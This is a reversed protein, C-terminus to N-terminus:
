FNTIDYLIKKILELKNKLDYNYLIISNPQEPTFKLNNKFNNLTNLIAKQNISTNQAFNIEINNKIERIFNIKLKNAILKINSISFLNQAQIPIEGFRDICEDQIEIIDKNTKINLLAKYFSIRLAPNTIYDDPFYAQISIDIETNTELEQKGTKILELAKDLLEVYLEFGIQKIYGHQKAGLINGAGRIELDRLALKFGAGLGSFEQIAQLRRISNETLNIGEPYFMYCFAKEYGRGIRGRLQYLQALGLKEIGDIIMMNVSPIDLGSEIITTALLIDIEKALFAHMVKELDNSKMRGHAIAIKANPIIKKLVNYKTHITEVRNFVYFVQGHRQLEFNIADKIMTENYPAIHTTIEQRTPPPTEILSIDKLGGLSMSLTRPIPTASLMLVDINESLTKIKEKDKVGFRHEEDVIVLGLSSFKINSRLITHTGIVIDVKGKAIDKIINNRNKSSQFRSLMAINAPYEAFRNKFNNYHQEALITTPVLIIVQKNNIVARFSARIAVETKGYGVDGCVLREMPSNSQMDHLVDTIAKQQDPTEQYPFSEQFEKEYVPDSKFSIGKAIKRKAQVNIIKEAMEWIKNKISEKKRTWYSSGLNDLKPSFDESSVYRHVLNFDYMPVYLKDNSSYEITIYDQEKTGAKVRKFGLFKGLGYNSHIVYDGKKYDFSSNKFADTNSPNIKKNQASQEYIRNFIEKETIFINKAKYSIFGERVYGTYFHTKTLNNYKSHILDTIKKREADTYLIISINFDSNLWHSFQKFFLEWNTQFNVVTQMGFDLVGPVSLPEISIRKHNQFIPISNQSYSSGFCLIFNKNDFYNMLPEENATEFSTGIPTISFNNIKKISRQTNPDFEYIQEIKNEDFLIRIPYEKSSPWIDLIEGRISYEGMETVEDLNQYGIKTFSSSLESIQYISNIKLEITENKLSNFSIVNDTISDINTVIIKKEKNNVLNYFFQPRKKSDKSPIYDIYTTIKNFTNWFKLENTIYSIDVTDDVIMLISQELNKSVHSCMLTASSPTLGSVKIESKEPLKNLINILQEFM